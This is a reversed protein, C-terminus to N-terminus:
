HPRILLHIDRDDPAPGIPEAGGNDTGAGSQAHLHELGLGGEPAARAGKGVGVGGADTVINARRDVWQCERRREEGLEIEGGAAHAQRNRIDGVGVWERASRGRQGVVIEFAGAGAQLVTVGPPVQQTWEDGIGM